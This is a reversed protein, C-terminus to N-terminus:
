EALIQKRAEAALRNFEDTIQGQDIALGAAAFDKALKEIVEAHGPRAFDVGVLDRAYSEAKDGSLGLKDRRAAVRFSIEQEHSFRAEAEREREDFKSMFVGEGEAVHDRGAEGGSM